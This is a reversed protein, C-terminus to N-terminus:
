ASLIERIKEAQIPKVYYAAAGLEAARKIDTPDYSGSLVVIKLASLAPQGQMWRLVEFGNRGPMKLDLFTVRPWEKSPVRTLQELYEIADDGDEKEIIMGPLGSKEYAVRFLFRDDESDDILLIKFSDNSDM